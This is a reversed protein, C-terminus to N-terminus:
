LTAQLAGCGVQEVLRLKKGLHLKKEHGQERGPGLKKKRLTQLPPHGPVMWVVVRAPQEKQM